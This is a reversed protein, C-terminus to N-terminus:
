RLLQNSTKVLCELIEFSSFKTVNNRVPTLKAPDYIFAVGGGRGRRPKSYIDYGHDHIEAFIAKDNTKLWTETVCCIDINNDKLLELTGVVKNCISRSNLVGVAIHSKSTNASDIM